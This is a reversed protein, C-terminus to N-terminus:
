DIINKVSVKRYWIEHRCNFTCEFDGPCPVDEPTYPNGAVAFNCGSCSTEIIDAEPFATFIAELRFATAEELLKSQAEVEARLGQHATSHASKAYSNCRYRQSRAAESISKKLSERNIHDALIVVSVKKVVSENLWERAYEQQDEVIKDLAENIERRSMVQSEGGIVAGAEIGMEYLRSHYQDIRQNIQNRADDVLLLLLAILEKQNEITQEEPM